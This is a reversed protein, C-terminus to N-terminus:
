ARARREYEAIADDQELLFGLQDLGNMLCYRSFRDIPFSVARGGPLTLTTSELDVTVEAGPNALLWTHTDGDVIVPLLGNKLANNRFIDAFESSVVARFGYDVLAWPAHERSSGCGFNHGGILIAAGKNEPKTLVFDPKTSGDPNYRWDFFLQKGLGEKTTTTLFRAPIIQDTDIDDYPIVVTKSRIQKVPEM